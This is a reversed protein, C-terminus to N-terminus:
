PNEGIGSCNWHAAFTVQDPRTHLAPYFESVSGKPFAVRITSGCFGVRGFQSLVFM